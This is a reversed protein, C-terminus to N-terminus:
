CCKKNKKKDQNNSGLNIKGKKNEKKIENRKGENIEEEKIEGEEFDDKSNLGLIKEGISKFILDVGTGKLASTVKFIAGIEEAYKQAEEEPVEENVILDSKNAALVIVINIFLFNNIHISILM